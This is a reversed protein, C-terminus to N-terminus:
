MSRRGCWFNQEEFARRLPLPTLRGAHIGASSLLLHFYSATSSSYSLSLDPARESPADRPLLPLVSLLLLLSLLRTERECACVCVCLRCGVAHNRVAAAATALAASARGLQHCCGRTPTHAWGTTVESFGSLRTADREPETLSFPTCPVSARLVVFVCFLFSSLIVSRFLSKSIFSNSDCWEWVCV